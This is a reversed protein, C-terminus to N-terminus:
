PQAEGHQHEHPSPPADSESADAAAAERSYARWGGISGVLENAERWSQVSQDSYPKYTKIASEYHLVATSAQPTHQAHQDDPVPPAAVAASSFALIVGYLPFRLLPRYESM